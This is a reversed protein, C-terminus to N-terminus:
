IDVEAVVWGFVEHQMHTSRPNLNPNPPRTPRLSRSLFPPEALTHSLDSAPESFVEAGRQGMPGQSTRGCVLSRHGHEPHAQSSLPLSQPPGGSERPQAGVGISPAGRRQM